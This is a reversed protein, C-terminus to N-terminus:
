LSWYSSRYLLYKTLESSIALSSYGFDIGERIMQKSEEVIDKGLALVFADLTEYIGQM